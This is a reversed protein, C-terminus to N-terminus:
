NIDIRLKIYEELEISKDTNAIYVRMDDVSECTLLACIKSIKLFCKKILTTTLSQMSRILTGVDKELRVAGHITFRKLKLLKIM